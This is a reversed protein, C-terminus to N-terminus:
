IRSSFKKAAATMKIEQVNNKIQNKQTGICTWSFIKKEISSEKLCNKKIEQLNKLAQNTYIM